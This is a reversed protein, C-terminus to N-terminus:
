RDVEVELPPIDYHANQSEVASMLRVLADAIQSLIGCVAVLGVVVAALLVVAALTM